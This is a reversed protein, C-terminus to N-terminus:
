YGFYDDTLDEGKHSRNSSPLEPIYHNPDNHENLFEKRSIGREMASQQHKRFEYGSKHGMDWPENKNMIKGTLLERVNGDADKAKEWVEDRVGKRYGSPRKYTKGITGKVNSAFFQLDMKLFDDSKKVVQTGVEFAKEAKSAPGIGPILGALALGKDFNTSCPDSFTKFFDYIGWGAM